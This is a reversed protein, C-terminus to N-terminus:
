NETPTTTRTHRRGRVRSRKVWLLVLVLVFTVVNTVVVPTQRTVIGYAIWLGLGVSFTTLMGLSLDNTSRTRYAKVVQPIFSVTTLFGALFGIAQIM